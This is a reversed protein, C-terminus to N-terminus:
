LLRAVADLKKYAEDITKEQDVRTIFFTSFHSILAVSLAEEIDNLEVGTGANQGTLVFLLGTTDGISTSLNPLCISNWDM